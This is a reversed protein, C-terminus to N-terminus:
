LIWFMAIVIFVTFFIVGFIAGLRWYDKAPIYGSGYYVPSPGTAYPTLIGMIGLTLALLMAFTRIDMGPIGMGVALMVPLMATVHATVSAFLYHTFFFVAALLLMAMTPSFGTMQAGITDAFWKVFGVRNLGDALAVLTAFWVLTNWAPKNSLIDDWSVVRGIVMLAIVGIAVTTANIVDGGFIWLALALIVLAALGVEKATLGGMQALEGQAWDPVENGGKIEPKYLVYALLPLTLLLVIGVPAFAVFWDMWTFSVKATKNIIEIALLNPALGTLFMSSTICTAAIAVWMLYGGIRRSSPDNPKSDYLAPLNRIVPYVTGGSRATNSPTFPALLVDAITVAYGLTLTKRGMTKVLWLAIRRGLGTKEYGLAFMFAAFILWVTTNSFGSLAWTLSANAPKFGAKALDAPSFLVYPALVTVVAVGILGIAAGPLPELMLGVIVGAFIAFFYWAHQPLGEPAPVLAIVLAVAIPALAKWSPPLSRETAAKPTKQAGPGGQVVSSM